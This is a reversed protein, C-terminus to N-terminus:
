PERGVLSVLDKERSVRGARGGSRVKSEERAERRKSRTMVRNVKGPLVFGLVTTMDHMMQLWRQDVKKERLDRLYRPPTVRTFKDDKEHM